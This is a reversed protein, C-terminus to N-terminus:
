TFIGGGAGSAGATLPPLGNLRRMEEENISVTGVNTDVPPISKLWNPANTGEGNRGDISIFPAEMSNNPTFTHIPQYSISVDLIQPLILMEKDM